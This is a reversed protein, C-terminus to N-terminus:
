LSKPQCRKTKEEKIHLDLYDAYADNYAAIANQRLFQAFKLSIEKIKEQEERLQNDMRQHVEIIAEKKEQDSRKASILLEVKRDMVDNVIYKNEYTIHMHKNWSCGCFKCKGNSKKIASCLM